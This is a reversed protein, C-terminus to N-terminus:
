YRAKTNTHQASSRERVVCTGFAAVMLHRLSDEQSIQTFCSNRRLSIHVDQNRRHTRATSSYDIITKKVVRMKSHNLPRQYRICVFFASRPGRHPCVIVPRPLGHLRAGPTAAAGRVASAGHLRQARRGPQRLLGHSTAANWALAPSLSLSLRLAPESPACPLRWRRLAPAPGAHRPTSASTVHVTGGGVNRARLLM